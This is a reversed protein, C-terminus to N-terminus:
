FPNRFEYDCEILYTAVAASASVSTVLTHYWAGLIGGVPDTGVVSASTRSWPRQSHVTFSNGIKTGATNWTNILKSGVVQAVIGISSPASGDSTPDFASIMSVPATAPTLMTYTIRTSRLRAEFFLLALATYSAMGSPAISTALNMSGAGSASLTAIRVTRIRYTKGPTYVSKALTLMTPMTTLPFVSQYLQEQGSRADIKKEESLLNISSSLLSNHESM